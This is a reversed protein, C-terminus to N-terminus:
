GFALCAKLDIQLLTKGPARDAPGFCKWTVREYTPTKCRGTGHPPSGISGIRDPTRDLVSVPSIERRRSLTDRSRRRGKQLSMVWKTLVFCAHIFELPWNEARDV